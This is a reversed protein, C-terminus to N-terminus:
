IEFKKKRKKRMMKENPGRDFRMHEIVINMAIKVNLEIDASQILSAM